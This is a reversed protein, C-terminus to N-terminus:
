TKEWHFELLYQNISPNYTRTFDQKFIDPALDNWCLSVFKKPPLMNKKHNENFCAIFISNLDFATIVRLLKYFSNTFM